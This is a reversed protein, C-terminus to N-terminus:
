FSGRDNRPHSVARGAEFRDMDDVFRALDRADAACRSRARHDDVIQVGLMAGVLLIFAALTESMLGLLSLVVLMAVILAARLLVRLLFARVDARM